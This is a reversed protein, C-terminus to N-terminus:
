TRRIYSRLTHVSISPVPTHIKFLIIHHIATVFVLAPVLRSNLFNTFAFFFSRAKVACALRQFFDLYSESHLVLNVLYTLHIFVALRYGFLWKYAPVLIIVGISVERTRRYQWCTTSRMEVQVNIGFIKITLINHLVEVVM